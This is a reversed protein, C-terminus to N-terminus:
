GGDVEESSCKVDRMPVLAGHVVREIEREGNRLATLEDRRILSQHVAQLAGRQCACDQSKRRGSGEDLQREEFPVGVMGPRRRGLVDCNRRGTWQIM